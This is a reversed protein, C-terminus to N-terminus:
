KSSKKHYLIWDLLAKEWGVDKGARESMYYKNDNIHKIDERYKQMLLTKEIDFDNYM